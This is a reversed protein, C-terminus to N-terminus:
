RSVFIPVQGSYSVTGQPLSAGNAYVFRQQPTFATVAPDFVAPPPTRYGNKNIPMQVPTMPPRNMPKAKIRAM